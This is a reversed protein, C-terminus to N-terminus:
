DVAVCTTEQVIISIGLTCGFLYLKYEVPKNKLSLLRGLVDRKSNDLRQDTEARDSIGM